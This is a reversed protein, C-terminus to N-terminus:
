PHQWLAIDPAQQGGKEQLENLSQDNSPGEKEGVCFTGHHTLAAGSISACQRFLM